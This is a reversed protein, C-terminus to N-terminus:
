NSIENIWKYDKSSYPTVEIHILCSSYWKIFDKRTLINDPVFNILSKSLSIFQKVAKVSYLRTITTHNNSPPNEGHYEVFYSHGKGVAYGVKKIILTIKQPYCRGQLEILTENEM